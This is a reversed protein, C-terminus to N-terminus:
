RRWMADTIGNAPPGRIRSCCTAYGPGATIPHRDADGVDTPTSPLPHAHETSGGDSCRHREHDKRHGRRECMRALDRPVPLQEVELPLPGGAQVRAGYAGIGTLLVELEEGVVPVCCRLSRGLTDGPVRLRPALDRLDHAVREGRLQM